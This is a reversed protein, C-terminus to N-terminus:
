VSRQLAEMPSFLCAKRQCKANFHGVILFVIQPSFFHKSGRSFASGECRVSAVSLSLFFDGKKGLWKECEGMEKNRFTFGDGDEKENAPAVLVAARRVGVRASAALSRFEPPGAEVGAALGLLLLDALLGHADEGLGHGHELQRGDRLEAAARLVEGLVGQLPRLLPVM